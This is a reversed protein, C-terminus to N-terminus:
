LDLKLQEVGKSTCFCYARSFDQTMYFGRGFDKHDKSKKLDIELIQQNSGHYLRM